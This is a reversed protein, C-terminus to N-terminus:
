NVVGDIIIKDKLELAAAAGLTQATMIDTAYKLYFLRYIRSDDYGQLKYKGAWMAIAERLGGQARRRANHRKVIAMQAEVPVGQPVRPDDDIRQVEARMMALVSADLEFLDGDVFEPASRNTVAAKYGCHPCTSYTREFVALCTDNLCTRLPIADDASVRKVRERRDLSWRRPSDPLGHRVVNGVHDIIIAKDKNPMPRLARGFNQAYLAYSQTPRAMCVVEIAPVDVGEGLIDVNVLQMIERNRFRQMLQARLLDPTKSSIVEAAVGAARFCEAIETAAAIDVAFTVGLKGSAIKIYHEVVDGTIRSQHVAKRLREPSYDGGAAITVSSLDLNSPPAFIRYDSLYGRRILERMSPGVILDHMIGDAHAGLGHGDARIPTATPYLGRAAPFMAAAKGWKNAALVHHAEDQVVLQVRQMWGQPPMRLLTDVSVANCQAQPNYFSQGFERMHLSVIGRATARPCILNHYVRQRALALSIQSLIESRHAIAVSPGQEQALITSFIVTKGAGTALQVMINQSGRAWARYVDDIIAQQYDRLDMELDKKKNNVYGDIAALIAGIPM